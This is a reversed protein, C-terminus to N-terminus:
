YRQLVQIPTKLGIGLHLRRTNYYKIYKGLGKQIKTLEMPLHNLCEEQITRNFREIHANDNPRRVRSHRHSIKARETFNQSFESGHDSQLMKLEFPIHRKAQKLFRLTAHTNIRESAFAYAFRSNVDIMTYIYIRDGNEKLHITDMQVLDGPNLPKPREADDHKHKWPSRKKLLMNRNLTRKVSSVSVTIGELLLEGHVAEACRGKLECRKDIIKQITEMSLRKPHSKPRSSETLVERVRGSPAKRVWRSVTSADFGFYRGVERISKGDRVMNVAQARLKPLYPNKSYTLHM